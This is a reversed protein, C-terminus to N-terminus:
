KSTSKDGKKLFDHLYDLFTLYIVIGFYSLWVYLLPIQLSEIASIVPKSSTADLHKYVEFVSWSLATSYATLSLAIAFAFSSLPASIKQFVQPHKNALWFLWGIFSVVLGSIITEFM